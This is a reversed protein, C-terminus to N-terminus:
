TTITWGKSTAQTKVDEPIAAIIAQNAFKITGTMGDERQTMDYVTNIIKAISEQSIELSNSLDLTQATTKFGKGLDTMYNITKLSSCGYFLQAISSLNQCQLGRCFTMKSCNYFMSIVNTAAGMYAGNFTEIQSSSFMSSLNTAKNINLVPFEKLSTNRFMGECTTATSFNLTTSSTANNLNTLNSCYAFMQTADTIKEFVDFFIEKGEWQSFMQKCETLETNNHIHITAFLSDAFAQNARQANTMDVDFDLSSVSHRFMNNWSEGVESFDYNPIELWTSFALKTGPALKLSGTTPVNVNVTVDSLDYGEDPTIVETGNATIDVTKSQTPTAPVEVDVSVKTMGDYGADPMVDTTGNATISVSKEQLTAGSGGGGDIHELVELEATYIDNVKTLDGGLKEVQAKKVEYTTTLGNAEGGIKNLQQKSVNYIDSM